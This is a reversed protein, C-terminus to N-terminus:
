VVVHRLISLLIYSIPYAASQLYRVIEDAQKKRQSDAEQAHMKIRERDGRIM